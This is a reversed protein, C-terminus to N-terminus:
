EEEKLFYYRSTIIGNLDKHVDHETFVFEGQEPMYPTYGQAALEAIEEQSIGIVSPKDIYIMIKNM